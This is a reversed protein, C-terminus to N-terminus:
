GVERQISFDRNNMEVHWLGNKDHWLQLRNFLEDHRDIINDHNSDILRKLEEFGSENLNSIEYDSKMKNGKFM